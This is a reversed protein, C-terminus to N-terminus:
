DVKPPPVPLADAATDVWKDGIEILMHPLDDIIPYKRGCDGCTLWADKVLTLVGKGERVCAPCRLIDLLEPSIM